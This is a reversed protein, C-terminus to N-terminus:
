LPGSWVHAEMCSSTALHSSRTMPRRGAGHRAFPLDTRRRTETSGALDVFADLSPHRRRRRGLMVSAHFCMPEPCHCKYTLNHYRHDCPSRPATVITPPCPRHHGGCAPEPMPLWMGCTHEMLCRHHAYGLEPTSLQVWYPIWTRHQSIDDLPSFNLPAVFFINTPEIMYLYHLKQYTHYSENTFFQINM